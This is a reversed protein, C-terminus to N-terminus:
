SGLGAKALLAKIGQAAGGGLAAVGLLIGIGKAKTKRYDAIDPVIEDVTKKVAAMDAKLGRTEDTIRDVKEHLRRRGENGEAIQAQISVLTAQIMGLERQTGNNDTM